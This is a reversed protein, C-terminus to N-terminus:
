CKLMSRRTAKAARVIRGVTTFHLGFAAAIQQYSYAGSAHAAVIARDRDPERAAIVALPEAPPHQQVKPIDAAPPRASAGGAREALARAVFRDDGLFVQRNLGSWIPERGIGEAV